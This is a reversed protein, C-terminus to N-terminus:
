SVVKNKVAESFLGYKYYGEANSFEINNLTFCNYYNKFYQSTVSMTGGVGIVLNIDMTDGLIANSENLICDAIPYEIQYIIDSLNIIKGNHTFSQKRCIENMSTLPLNRDYTTNLYRALEKHIDIMGKKITCSKDSLYEGYAMTIIDTTKYGIDIVRIIGNLIDNTEKKPKGKDNLIYDYFAGAAQPIVKVSNVNIILQKGRFTFSHSGSLNSILKDKLGKKKFDEVPLGTVIDLSDKSKSLGLSALFAIKDNISNTKDTTVCVRANNTSLAKNGIYYVIGNYNLFLDDILEVDKNELEFSSPNGIISPFIFKNSPTVLKVQSFGLDLGIYM